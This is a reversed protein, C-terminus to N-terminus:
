SNWVDLTRFQTVSCERSSSSMCPVTRRWSYTSWCREDGEMMFELDKGDSSKLTVIIIYM